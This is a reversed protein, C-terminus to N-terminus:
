EPQQLDLELQRAAQTWERSQYVLDDLEHLKALELDAKPVRECLVPLDLADLVRCAYKSSCKKCIRTQTARDLVWVIHSTAQWSQIYRRACDTSCGVRDAVVRADEALGPEENLLDIIENRYSM